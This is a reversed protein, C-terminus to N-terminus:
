KFWVRCKYLFGCFIYSLIIVILLGGVGVVYGVVLNVGYMYFLNLVYYVYFIGGEM